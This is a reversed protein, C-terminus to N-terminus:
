ADAVSPAAAASTAPALPACAPAFFTPADAVASADFVASVAPPVAFDSEAGLVRGRRQGAHSVPQRIGSPPKPWGTAAPPAFRPSRAPQNAASATASHAAVAIM